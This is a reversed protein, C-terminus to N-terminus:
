ILSLYLDRIEKNDRYKRALFNYLCRLYEEKEEDWRGLSKIESVLSRIKYVHSLIESEDEIYQLILTLQMFKLEHETYSFLESLTNKIEQINKPIEYIKLSDLVEKIKIISEEEQKTKLNELEKKLNEINKSNEKVASVLNAIESLSSHVKRIEEVVRGHKERERIMSTIQILNRQKREFLEEFTKRNLLGRKYQDSLMRLEESIREKESILENITKPKMLEIKEKFEEIMELQKMLNEINEEKLKSKLNKVEAELGSLRGLVTKSRYKRLELNLEGIKRRREDLLKKFEEESIKKSEFDDEIKKIEEELANIQAKIEEIRKKEEPTLLTIMEKIERLEKLYEKLKKMEEIEAEMREIKDRLVRAVSINKISEVDKKDAKNKLAIQLKDVTPVLDKLIEDVNGIKRLREDLDLIKDNVDEFIAEIKGAVRDVYNKSEEIEALTRRVKGALEVLNEFSKIKELFRRVEETKKTLEKYFEELKDIRAALELIKAEKKEIEKTIASPEIEKVIENIKEFGLEIKSITKERDLIMTRLEGIEESFARTTEALQNKFEGIVELKGKLKEIEVNLQEYAEKKQKLEIINQAIKNLVSLVQKKFNELLTIRESLVNLKLNISELDANERYVM